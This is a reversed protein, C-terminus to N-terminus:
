DPLETLKVRLDAVSEALEQLTKNESARGLAHDYALGYPTKDHLMTDVANAKQALLQCQKALIEVIRLLELAVEKDM